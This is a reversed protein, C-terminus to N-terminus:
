SEEEACEWCLLVFLADPNQANREKDYVAFGNIDYYCIEDPYYNYSESCKDCKFAM